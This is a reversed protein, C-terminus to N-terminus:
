LRTIAPGNETYIYVMVPHLLGEPTGPLGSKPKSPRLGATLQQFFDAKAV